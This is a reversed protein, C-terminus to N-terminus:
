YIMIKFRPLRMYGPMEFNNSGQKKVPLFLDICVYHKTTNLFLLQLPGRSSVTGRKSILATSVVQFSKHQKKMNVCTCKPRSCHLTM